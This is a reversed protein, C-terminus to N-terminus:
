EVQFPVLLAGMGPFLWFHRRHLSARCTRAKPKPSARVGVRMEGSRTRRQVAKQSPQSRTLSHALSRTLPHTPSHLATAALQEDEAM